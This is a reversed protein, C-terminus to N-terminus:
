GRPSRNPRPLREPPRIPSRRTAPRLRPRCAFALALLGFLRKGCHTQVFNSVARLSTSLGCRNDAARCAKDAVLVPRRSASARQIACRFLGSVARTATFWIHIRCKPSGSTAVTKLKPTLPVAGVLGAARNAPRLEHIAAPAHFRHVSQHDGRLRIAHNRGARGVIRPPRDIGIITQQPVRMWLFRM